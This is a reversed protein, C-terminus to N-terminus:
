RVRLLSGRLGNPLAGEGADVTLVSPQGPEMDFRTFVAGGPLLDVGLPDGSTLSRLQLPYFEVTSGEYISRMHWSLQTYRPEIAPVLDDAYVSVTWDRIWDLPPDAGIVQALNDLGDVRSNVLDFFFAEDGRGSRDAAYRLFSWTAGRTSLNDIGMLSATDPESLYQRFNSLNGAMFENFAAVGNAATRIDEVTLNSLPELGSAGYFLLEEAAHSLGENLWTAEFTGAENVFIRRSANVLHQFEHGILPIALERVRELTFIPGVAGNPDPAVLYFMEAQNGGPCAQLVEAEEEPFLDGSWFFGITVSQATRANRQNVASTFFLISRDNEDIDSPTGFHATEVPYVLTDFTVGFYAYDEPLLDVPNATDAVVVAHDSVHMVRGTRLTEETCSIAVNFSLLEGVEPAAQALAQASQASQAAPLAASRNARRDRGRDGPRLLPTLEQIERRRLWDHFRHDRVYRPSAADGAGRLLVPGIGAEFSQGLSEPANGGLLEIELTIRSDAVDDDPAPTGFFPIYVFEGRRGNVPAICVSRSAQGRVHVVEGVGSSIPEAFVCSLLPGAPGAVDTGCGTLFGSLALTTATLARNM